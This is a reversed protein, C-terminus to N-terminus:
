GYFEIRVSKINTPLSDEDSATKTTVYQDGPISVKLIGFKELLEKTIVLRNEPWLKAPFELTISRDSCKVSEVVHEYFEQRVEKIIMAQNKELQKMISGRNFEEPFHDM